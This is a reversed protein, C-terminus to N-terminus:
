DLEDKHLKNIEKVVLIHLMETNGSGPISCAIVLCGPM